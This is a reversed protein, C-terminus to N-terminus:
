LNPSALISICKQRMEVITSDGSEIRQQLQKDDIPPQPSLEAYEMATSGSYDRCGPDAGNEILKRVVDHHGNSAAVHLATMRTTPIQHHVDASFQLLLDAIELRGYACAVILATHGRRDSGNVDCGDVRILHDVIDISNAAIALILDTESERHPHMVSSHRFFNDADTRVEDSMSPYMRSIM